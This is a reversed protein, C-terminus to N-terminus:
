QGIAKEIAKIAIPVGIGKAIELIWSGVKKLQEFTGSKNGNRAEVEASQLAEIAVTHEEKDSLQDIKYRLTKIEDALQMLPVETHNITQNISNNNERPGIQGIEMTGKNNIENYIQAHIENKKDKGMTEGKQIFNILEKECEELISKALDYDETDKANVIENEARRLMYSYSSEKSKEASTRLNKIIEIIRNHVGDLHKYHRNLISLHTESSLLINDLNNLYRIYVQISKKSKLENAINDASPISYHTTETGISICNWEEGYTKIQEINSKIRAIHNQVRSKKDALEGVARKANNLEEASTNLWRKLSLLNESILPYQNLIEQINIIVIEEELTAFKKLESIANQLDACRIVSKNKSETLENKHRIIISEAQKELNSLDNGSVNLSNSEKNLEALKNFVFLISSISQTDISTDQIKSLKEFSSQAKIVENIQKILYHIESKLKRAEDPKIYLTIQRPAEITTPISFPEDSNIPLTIRSPVEIITPKSLRKQYGELISIWKSHFDWRFKQQKIINIENELIENLSYRDIALMVPRNKLQFIKSRILTINISNIFLVLYYWTLVLCAKSIESVLLGRLRIEETYSLYNQPISKIAKVSLIRSHIIESSRSLSALSKQINSITDLFDRLNQTEQITLFTYYKPKINLYRISQHLQVDALKTEILTDIAVTDSYIEDLPSLLIETAKVENNLKDSQLSVFKKLNDVGSSLRSMFFITGFFMTVFSILAILIITMIINM